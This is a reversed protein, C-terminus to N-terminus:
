QEMTGALHKWVVCRRKQDDPVPEMGTTNLQFRMRQGGTTGWPKWEPASSDRYTNPDLSLIFSIWYKMVIPVMPKNYTLYSCNNCTGAYGPGWVAPKESVHPVGLGVTEYDADWVNYRYNWTRSHSFYQAISSAIENGPCTFTSEGYAQAAPAFYTADDPMSAGPPYTVNIIQLDASTLRPYNAQMFDLFEASTSANPAFYTGEDNDDGVIVPVKTVKGRKFLTYLEDPAFTGDIVPLFYWLPNETTGPFRSAVDASQLTATSQSRLCALSDEHHGCGVDDVFKQFQSESEAVTRHAPFFPSEAIAGVFLKEREGGYATLHYAVSGGGASTGHIVIHDPDGGFLHINHRAWKLAKQQDLLGVNLNGNKRIKESALFGFAGVRYNIQVFIMSYNSQAVVESGNFNRDSNAAYGGGQIFFWVPLKKHPTTKSPAFVDIFLCDENTSNSLAPGSGATGICTAGFEKAAQVGTTFVPDEPARFRLDGLPPAAYRIGLFQNVGNDLATGEYQAYGLDVIPSSPSIKDLPRGEVALPLGLVLYAVITVWFM